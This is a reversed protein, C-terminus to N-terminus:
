QRCNLETRNTFANLHNYSGNVLNTFVRIVDPSTADALAFEIDDIDTNEIFIGVELAECYSAKGQEVLLIYLSGFDEESDPFVGQTDDAVPDTLGYKDILKKVAEMHRQESNSINLFIQALLPDSEYHSYLALYVDRALKEEQRIYLIEAVEGESLTGPVLYNNGNSDGRNTNVLGQGTDGAPGAANDGRVKGGAAWAPAAVMSAIVFLTILMKISKTM